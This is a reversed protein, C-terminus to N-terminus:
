QRELIYLKFKNVRRYIQTLFEITESNMAFISSDFSDNIVAAIIQNIYPIYMRILYKVDHDNNLDQSKFFSYLIIGKHKIMFQKCSEVNNLKFIIKIDNEFNYTPEFELCPEILLVWKVQEISKIIEINMKLCELQQNQFKIFNLNILLKFMLPSKTENYNKSSHNFNIIKMECDLLQKLISSKM